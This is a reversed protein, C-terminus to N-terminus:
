SPSLGEILPVFRVQFLEEYIFETEERFVKILKQISDSQGVPIIM